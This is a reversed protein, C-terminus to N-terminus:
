NLKSKAAKYMIDLCNNLVEEEYDYPNESAALCFNLKDNSNKPM